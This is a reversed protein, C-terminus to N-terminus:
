KRRSVTPSASPMLAVGPKHQSMGALELFRDVITEKIDNVRLLRPRNLLIRGGAAQDHGGGTGLNRALSSAVIGADLDNRSFRLSFVIQDEYRGLVLTRTVKEHRLLFDAMEAVADPAPIDGLDTVLANGYLRAHSIGLQFLAFYDGPIKAKTIRHLLDWDVADFLSFHARRDADCLSSGLDQTESRIAYFLATALKSDWRIGQAM